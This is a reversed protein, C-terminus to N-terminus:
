RGRTDRGGAAQSSRRVGEHIPERGASLRAGNGQPSRRSGRGAQVQVHLEARGPKTREDHVRREQHPGRDSLGSRPHRQRPDPHRRQALLVRDDDGPREDAPRQAPALGAESPIDERGAHRGAMRRDLIGDVHTARAGVPAAARGHLDDPDPRLHQHHAQDGGAGAHEPRTRGLHAPQDARPLHVSVRARPM